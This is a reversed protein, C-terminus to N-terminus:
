YLTKNENESYKNMPKVCEDRDMQSIHLDLKSPKGQFVDYINKDDFGIKSADIRTAGFYLAKLRAWYIASLCMPCPECTSYIECDALSFRGLKKTAKRIAVIEAHNTPDNTKIVENHATAIIKNDKVIVAGFPGGDGKKSGRLAEEIAKKM